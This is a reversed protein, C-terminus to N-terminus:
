MEPVDLVPEPPNGDFIIVLDFVIQHIVNGSDKQLSLLISVVDVANIKGRGGIGALNVGDEAGQVKLPDCKRFIDGAARFIVAPIQFILDAFEIVLQIGQFLSRHFHQGFTPRFQHGNEMLKLGQGM